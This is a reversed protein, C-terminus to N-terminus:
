NHRVTYVRLSNDVLRGGVWITYIKGAELTVDPAAVIEATGGAQVFRFVYATGATPPFALFNSGTSASVSVQRFGLNQMGTPRYDGLGPVPVILDLRGADPSLHLLRVLAQSPNPITADEFSLTVVDQPTLTGTVFTSYRKGATTSLTSTSLVTGGATYRINLSGQTVTSYATSTNPALNSVFTTGDVSVNVATSGALTNFAMLQATTASENLDFFATGQGGDVFVRIGLPVRDASSITGHVVVTYTQNELTAPQYAAVARNAVRDFLVLSVDGTPKISQESSQGAALQSMWVQDAVRLELNAGDSTANVWRVRAQGASLLSRDDRRLQATVFSAPPFVFITYDSGAELTATTEVRNTTSAVDAIGLRRSGPEIITYGSSSGFSIGQRFVGGDVRLDISPADYALHVVRLRAKDPVPSNTTDDCGSMWFSLVIVLVSPLIRNIGCPLPTFM